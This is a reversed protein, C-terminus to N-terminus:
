VQKKRRLQPLLSAGSILLHGVALKKQLEKGFDTTPSGREELTRHQALSLEWSQPVYSRCVSVALPLRFTRDQQLERESHGQKDPLQISLSLSILCAGESQYAISGLLFLLVMDSDLIKQTCSYTAQPNNLKGNRRTNRGSSLAARDLYSCSSFM